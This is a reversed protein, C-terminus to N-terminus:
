MGGTGEPKRDVPGRVAGPAGRSEIEARVMGWFDPVWWQGLAPGKGPAPGLPRNGSDVSTYGPSQSGSSATM